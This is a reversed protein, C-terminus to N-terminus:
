AGWDDQVRYDGAVPIKRVGHSFRGDIFLASVEGFTEVSAIYPQVMLDEEPLLRDLHARAEALGQQDRNFRLTERATAGVLPKIFGRDWGREEMSRELDVSSGAPLWLTPVIPVGRQGLERLYSKHTNWRVVEADNMLLTQEGARSAWAVYADRHETYDWTTRILCADFASWDVSTDSWSPQVLEVGRDRLAQHLPLDDKEWEPVSDCTALAIRM